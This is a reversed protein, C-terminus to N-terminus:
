ARIKCARQVNDWPLFSFCCFFDGPLFAVFIEPIFFEWAFFFVYCCCWSLSSVIVHEASEASWYLALTDELVDYPTMGRSEYLEPPCSARCTSKSGMGNEEETCMEPMRM